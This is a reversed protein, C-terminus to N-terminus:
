DQRSTLIEPPHKPGFERVMRETYAAKVPAGPEYPPGDVVEERPLNVQVIAEDWQVNAIWPLAILVSRYALWGGTSVLFYRVRWRPVDVLLDQVEGVLGDQAIIQYGRVQRVSRLCGTKSNDGDESAAEREM